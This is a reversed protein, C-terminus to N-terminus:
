KFSQLKNKKSGNLRLKLSKPLSQRNLKLGQSSPGKIPPPGFRVGPTKFKM